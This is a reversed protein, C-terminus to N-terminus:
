FGGAFKLRRAACTRCIMRKINCACAKALQESIAVFFFTGFSAFYKEFIVLIFRSHKPRLGKGGRTKEGM